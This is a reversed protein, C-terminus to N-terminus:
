QKLKVLYYLVGQSGFLMARLTKVTKATVSGKPHAIDNRIKRVKHLKDDYSASSKVYYKVAEIANFLDPCMEYGTVGKARKMLIEDFADCWGKAIIRWSYEQKEYLYDSEAMEKLIEDSFETAGFDNKYKAILENIKKNKLEKQTQEYHKLEWELAAKSNKLAAVENELSQMKENSQLLQRRKKSVGL